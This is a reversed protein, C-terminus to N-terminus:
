AAVGEKVIRGDVLKIVRDVVSLMSSDHTVMVTAVKHAHCQRALLEVVERGRAQDLMSTPEDVLLLAPNGM